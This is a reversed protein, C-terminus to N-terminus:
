VYKNCIGEFSENSIDKLNIQIGQSLDRFYADWFCNHKMDLKEFNFDAHERELIDTNVHNIVSSLANEIDTGKVIAFHEILTVTGRESICAKYTKDDNAM